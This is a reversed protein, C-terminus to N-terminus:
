NYFYVLVFEKKGQEKLFHDFYLENFEDRWVSNQFLFIQLDKEKATAHMTLIFSCKECPIVNEWCHVDCFKLRNKELFAIFKKIEM